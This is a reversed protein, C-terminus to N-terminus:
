REILNNLARYLMTTSDVTMGDEWGGSGEESSFLFCWKFLVHCLACWGRRMASHM